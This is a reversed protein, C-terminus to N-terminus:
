SWAAFAIINDASARYGVDFNGGCTILALQSYRSNDSLVRRLAEPDNKPVGAVVNTIRFDAQKTGTGDVVTVEDGPRLEGLRNFVAYGTGVLTHGLLVAMEPGGVLPGDAWWGVTSADPPVAFTPVMQGGLFPAPATVTGVPGVSATVGISPITLQAPAFTATGFPAPSAPLPMLTVPAGQEAWASGGPMLFVMLGTIIGAALRRTM